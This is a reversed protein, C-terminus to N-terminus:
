EASPLASYAIRDPLLLREFHLGDSHRELIIDANKGTDTSDEYLRNVLINSTEGSDSRMSLVVNNSSHLIHITCEGAPLTKGGVIVPSAFRVNVTDVPGQANLSGCVTLAAACILMSIKKM